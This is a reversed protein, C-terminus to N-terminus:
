GDEGKAEARDKVVVFGETFGNAGILALEEIVDVFEAAFSLHVQLDEDVVTARLFEDLMEWGLSHSALIEGTKAFICHPLALALCPGACHAELHM